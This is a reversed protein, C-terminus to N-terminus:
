KTAEKKNAQEILNEMAERIVSSQSVGMTQCAEKFQEVFDKNYRVSIVKMNEKQWVQIYKKQNFESM